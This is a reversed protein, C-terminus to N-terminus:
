SALKRITDAMVGRKSKAHLRWREFELMEDYVKRQEADSLIANARVIQRFRSLAQPDGTHLDPHSAKVANRFSSKLSAADDNPSAGLVDYLTTMSTAGCLPPGKGVIACATSPFPTEASSM